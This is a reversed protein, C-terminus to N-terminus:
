DCHYLCSYVRFGLGRPRNPDRRILGTIDLARMQHAVSSPSPRGAAEGVERISPPYGRKEIMDAIVELIRRQRLTLGAADVSDPLHSM